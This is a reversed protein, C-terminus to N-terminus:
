LIKSQLEAHTEADSPCGSFKHTSFYSANNHEKHKRRHVGATGSPVSMPGIRM